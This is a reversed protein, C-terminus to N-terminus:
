KYTPIYDYSVRDPNRSIIEFNFVEYLNGNKDVIYFSDLYLKNANIIDAASVYLPNYLKDEHVVPHTHYSDKIPFCYGNCEYYAYGRVKDSFCNNLEASIMTNKGDRFIVYNGDILGVAVTETGTTRSRSVLLNTMRTLTQAYNGNSMIILDHNTLYSSKAYYSDSKYSTEVNYVTSESAYNNIREGFPDLGYLLRTGDSFLVEQSFDGIESYDNFEYGWDDYVEAYIDANSNQANDWAKKILDGVGLESSYSQAQVNNAVFLNLLLIALSLVKRM